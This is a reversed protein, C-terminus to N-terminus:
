KALAFSPFPFHHVGRYFLEQMFSYERYFLKEMRFVADKYTINISRINLINM